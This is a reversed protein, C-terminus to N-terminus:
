KQLPDLPLLIGADAKSTANEAVSPVTKQISELTRLAATLVATNDEAAVIQNLLACTEANPYNELAYIAATRGQEASVDKSGAAAYLLASQAQPASIRTITSFLSGGEGPSAAELRSLLYNVSPADGVNALAEIAAQQLGDLAPSSVDGALARRSESAQPSSINRVM